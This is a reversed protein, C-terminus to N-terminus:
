VVSDKRLDFLGKETLISSGVNLLPLSRASEPYARM